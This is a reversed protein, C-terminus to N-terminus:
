NRWKTLGPQDSNRLEMEWKLTTSHKNTSLLHSYTSMARNKAMQKSRSPGQGSVQPAQLKVNASRTTCSQVGESQQGKGQRKSFLEAAEEATVELQITQNRPQSVSTQIEQRSDLDDALPHVTGQRLLLGLEDASAQLQDLRRPTRSKTQKHSKAGGQRPPPTSIASGPSASHSTLPPPEATHELVASYQQRSNM